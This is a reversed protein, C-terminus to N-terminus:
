RYWERLSLARRISWRVLFWQIRIESCIRRPQLLEGGEGMIV